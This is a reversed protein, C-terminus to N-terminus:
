LVYLLIQVFCYNKLVLLRAALFIATLIEFVQISVGTILLTELVSNFKGDNELVM